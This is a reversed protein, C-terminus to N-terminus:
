LCGKYIYQFCGVNTYIGPITGPPERELIPYEVVSRFSAKSSTYTTTM